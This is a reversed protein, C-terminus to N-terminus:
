QRGSTRNTPFMFDQWVYTEENFPTAYITKTLCPCRKTATCGPTAIMCCFMTSLVFAIALIKKRM